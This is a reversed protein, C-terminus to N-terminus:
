PKAKLGLGGAVTQGILLIPMIDKDIFYGITAFIATMIWVAGRQTTRSKWDIKNM